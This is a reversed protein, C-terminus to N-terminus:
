GLSILVDELQNLLHQIDAETIILPPQIALVNRNPGNKGVLIGREKLRELIIDLEQSAPTGDASVLEAGVMLGLGRVDGILPYKKQLELLGTKLQQGLMAARAPLAEHIAKM